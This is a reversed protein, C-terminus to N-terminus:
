EGSVDLIITSKPAIKSITTASQNGSVYLVKGSVTIDLEKESLNHIVLVKQYIDNYTFERYFGQIESTSNQYKEITNGYRLAVNENRVKLINKYTNLISNEEKLQETVSKVNKNKVVDKFATDAFWKTTYSDGFNLPLRRTEDWIDVGNSKEGNSKTGFMGVEEGYYIIPSGPLTLLMEAALKMKSLDNNYESAIRDEDHNRLFPASIFNPDYKRYKDYIDILVDVYASSAKKNATSVIREAIPFDLPSDIGEFYPAIISETKLNIEGTIYFEPNIKRMEDRFNSLFKINPEYPYVTEYYENLGYLHQAADIRFGSVGKEVWFRGINYVEERVEKNEYNLDPMQDTFYGCFYEDGVKHWINQGWSGFQIDSSMKQSFVYYNRYKSDGNLAKKFWDHQRSTHNIVLDIIIKIDKEKAKKLLSEFEAMTGYESNVDYYDLVDYGHYSTAPNIPMLWLGTIGLDKLYDLKDELGKFDGIGDNNSDAFSRVFVQYYVDNNPYIKTLDEDKKCGFTFSLLVLLLLSLIKKM